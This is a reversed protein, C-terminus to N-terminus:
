LLIVEELEKFMGAFAELSCVVSIKQESQTEVDVKASFIGLVILLIIISQRANM